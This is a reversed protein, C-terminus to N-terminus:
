IELMISESVPTGSVLFEAITAKEVDVRQNSKPNLPRVDELFCMRTDESPQTFANKVPDSHVVGITQAIGNLVKRAKAMESGTCPDDALLNELWALEQPSVPRNLAGGTVVEQIDAVLYQNFGFTHPLKCINVDFEDPSSLFELFQGM